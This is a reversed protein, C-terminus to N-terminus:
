LSGIANAMVPFSRRHEALSDTEGHRVCPAPRVHRFTNLNAYHPHGRQYSVFMKGGVGFEKLVAMTANPPSNDIKKEATDLVYWPTLLRLNCVTRRGFREPM